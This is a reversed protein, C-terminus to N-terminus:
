GHESGEKSALWTAQANALLKQGHKPPRLLYINMRKAASAAFASCHTHGPGENEGGRDPDGTQWNVHEHALWHAEVDMGDLVSALQQGSAAIPGCCPREDAASIIPISSGLRIVLATGFLWWCIREFKM